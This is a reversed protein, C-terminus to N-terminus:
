LLFMNIIEKKHKIMGWDTGDRFPVLNYEENGNGDIIEKLIERLERLSM